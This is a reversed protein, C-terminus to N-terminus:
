EKKGLCFLVLLGQKEYCAEIDEKCDQSNVKISLYDTSAKTVKNRVPRSPKKRLKHSLDRTRCIKRCFPDVKLYALSCHM